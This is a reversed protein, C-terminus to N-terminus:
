DDDLRQAMRLMLPSFGAKTALAIAAENCALTLLSWHTIERRLLDKRCATLLATGIGRRRREPLVVLSELEGHSEGTDFTSGPSVFRLAAYGVVRRGAGVSVAPLVGTAPGGVAPLAGTRPSGASAPAGNQLPMASTVAPSAEAGEPLDETAIFIVGSGDNIWSLYEQLRRQWAEGPELVRWAGCAAAAYDSVMQKWLPKVLSIDRVHARDIRFTM